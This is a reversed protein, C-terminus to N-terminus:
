TGSRQMGSGLSCVQRLPPRSSGSLRQPASGVPSQSSEGAHCPMHKVSMIGSRFPVGCWWKFLYDLGDGERGKGM